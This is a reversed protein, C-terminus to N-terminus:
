LSRLEPYKETLTKCEDNLIAEDIWIMKNSYYKWFTTWNSLAKALIKKEIMENIAKNLLYGIIVATVFFWFYSISIKFFLKAGIIVTMNFIFIWHDFAIILFPFIILFLLIKFDGTWIGFDIIALAILWNISKFIKWKRFTSGDLLLQLLKKKFLFHNVRWKIKVNDKIDSLFYEENLNDPMEPDLELM